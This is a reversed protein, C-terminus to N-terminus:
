GKAKAAPLDPPPPFPRTSPARKLKLGVSNDGVTQRSPDRRTRQLWADSARVITFHPAAILTDMRDRRRVPLQTGRALKFNQKKPDNSHHRRDDRASDSDVGIVIM